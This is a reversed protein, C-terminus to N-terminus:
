SIYQLKEVRELPPNVRPGLFPVGLDTNKGPNLPTKRSNEAGGIISTNLIWRCDMKM